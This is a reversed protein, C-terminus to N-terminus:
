TRSSRRREVPRWLWSWHRILRPTSEFIDIRRRADFRHAAGGIVVAFELAGILSFERTREDSVDELELLRHPAAATARLLYQYMTEDVQIKM